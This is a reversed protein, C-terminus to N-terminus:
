LTSRGPFRCLTLCTFTLILFADVSDFPFVNVNSRTVKYSLTLVELNNVPHKKRAPDIAELFISLRFFIYFYPHFCLNKM